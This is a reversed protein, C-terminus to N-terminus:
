SAGRLTIVNSAPPNVISELKANWLVLAERMEDAYQHQDYVRVLGRKSHGIVLEATQEPVRLASLRTRVTRRIDHLTWREIKINRRDIGQARGIARWSHAMARELQKKSYWVGVFPREGGNASFVFDGRQWRPVTNLLASMAATLPVVHTTGMKHREPPVTWLRPGLESWRAGTAESVRCGTLMIWRVMAGCPYGMRGAARWLARLEDDDLVRERIRKEGLLAKPKIRDCPSAELGYIDRAIAWNFFTSLHGFINRAYAGTSGRDAIAELLTVIDRRTIEGIPRQGLVPILERRIEREVVKAKRKGQLHRKIFEEAVASFTTAAQLQSASAAAREVERPDRGAKILALWDRAKDRAAALTIAGVEGLERRKFHDSGPYRAGLIFTRHGRETVRVGLGPVLADHAIYRQGAPAPKLGQIFKDTLIRKTM